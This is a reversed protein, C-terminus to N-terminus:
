GTRDGEQWNEVKTPNDNEDVLWVGDHGNRGHGSTDAVCHTIRIQGTIRSKRARAVAKEIKWHGHPTLCKFDGNACTGSISTFRFFAM